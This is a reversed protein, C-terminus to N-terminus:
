NRMMMRLESGYLPVREDLDDAIARAQDLKGLRIYCKALPYLIEPDDPFRELSELLFAEGENYRDSALLTYGKSAYMRVDDKGLTIARDNAKMAADFHGLERNMVAISMYCEAAQEPVLIAARKFARVSEEVFGDDSYALAMNFWAQGMRPRLKIARKFSRIASTRDDANYQASGLNYWADANDPTAKTVTLLVGIAQAHQDTQQYAYGLATLATTDPPTITTLPQLISIVSDYKEQRMLCEVFSVRIRANRPDIEYLRGYLDSAEPYRQTQLYCEALQAVVGLNEPRRFMTEELPTIAAECQGARALSVGFAYTARASDPNREVCEAFVSLGENIKGASMLAEGRLLWAQLLSSDANIALQLVIRRVTLTLSNCSHM